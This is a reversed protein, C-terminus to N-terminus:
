LVEDRIKEYEPLAWKRMWESEFIQKTTPRDDPRFSFMPKLMDFFVAKEKTDFSLLGEHRRPNEM